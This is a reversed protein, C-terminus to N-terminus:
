PTPTWSGLWPRLMPIFTRHQSHEQSPGIIPLIESAYRRTMRELESKSMRKPDCISAGKAGGFPVNVTATEVDDLGRPSEGRRSDRESSVPHRGQGARAVRQAARPLRYVGESPRQGDQHALFSGARAESHTSDAAFGLDLKLFEAAM